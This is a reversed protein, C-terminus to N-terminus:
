QNQQLVNTSVHIDTRHGGAGWLALRACGYLGADEGLSTVEIRTKKASIPQAWRAVGARIGPLLLEAGHMVGGGLVVMEPDLVSILNAIGMGLYDAASRLADLARSDGARAAEFVHEADPMGARKAISPGAAEAEWCGTQRYEDRWFPNLAMWGAAGAIGRSGEIVRGGSLIGVGIGTGVAVFLVDNLGAAAGMWAEGMVYGTRDSAIVFPVAAVADRIADRLPVEDWGWLNPAWAMGTQPAYIGPVIIGVADVSGSRAADAIQDVTGSLTRAATSKSREAVSGDEGVLATATKTGGLDVALVTRMQGM